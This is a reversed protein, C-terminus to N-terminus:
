SQTPSNLHSPIRRARPAGQFLRRHPEDLQEGIDRGGL